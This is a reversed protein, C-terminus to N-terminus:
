KPEKPTPTPQPFRRSDDPKAQAQGRKSEDGHEDKDDDEDDSSEDAAVARHYQAAVSNPFRDFIERVFAKRKDDRGARGTLDAALRLREEEFPGMDDWGLLEQLLRDDQATVFLRYAEKDRASSHLPERTDPDEGSQIYSMRRGLAELLPHRLYRSRPYKATLRLTEDAPLGDFLAPKSTLHRYVELEEREPATVDFTITNSPSPDRDPERFVMRLTYRGPRSFAVTNSEGPCPDGYTGGLLVINQLSPRGKFFQLYTFGEPPVRPDECYRKPGSGDEVWFELLRFGDVESESRLAVDDSATWRLVLKIPEGVLVQRQPATVRINMRAPTAALLLLSASLALSM